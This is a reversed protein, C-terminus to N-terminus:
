INDIKVYAKTEIRDISEFIYNEEYHILLKNKKFKIM